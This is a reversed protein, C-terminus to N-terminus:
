GGLTVFQRIKSRDEDSLALFQIGMGVPDECWRVLGRGVIPKESIEQLVFTFTVPAEVPLPNSTDVFVGGESLDRIRGTLPPCNSAYHFEIVTQVRRFFRREVATMTHAETRAFLSPPLIDSYM